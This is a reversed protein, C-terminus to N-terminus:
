NVRDLIFKINETFYNKSTITHNIASDITSMDKPDLYFKTNISHCGHHHGAHKQRYAQENKQKFNSAKDPNIMAM